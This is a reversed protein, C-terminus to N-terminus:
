FELRLGILATNLRGTTGAVMWLPTSFIRMGVTLQTDLPNPFSPNFPNMPFLTEVSYNKMFSEMTTKSVLITDQSKTKTDSSTKTDDHEKDVEVVVDGNSKHTTITRDVYVIRDKNVLRDVTQIKTETKTLTTVIKEPDKKFFHYALSGIVLIIVGYIIHVKQAQLAQLIM